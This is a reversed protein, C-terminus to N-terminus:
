PLPGAGCGGARPRSALTNLQSVLEVNRADCPVDRLLTVEAHVYALQDGLSERVPEAWVRQALNAGWWTFGRPERVSWERDIGMKKFVHEVASIGVDLQASMTTM